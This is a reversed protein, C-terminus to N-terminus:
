RKRCPRGGRGRHRRARPSRARAARDRRCAPVPQRRRANRVETDQRAGGPRNHRVARGGCAAPSRVPRAAAQRTATRAGATVPAAAPDPEPARPRGGSSGQAAHTCGGRAGFGRVRGVVRRAASSCRRGRTREHVDALMSRWIAAADLATGMAGLARVRGPSTLLTPSARPAPATAPRASSVAVWPTGGDGDRGASPSGGSREPPRYHGVSLPRRESPAPAVM